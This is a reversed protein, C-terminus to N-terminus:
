GFSITSTNRPIRLLVVRETLGANVTKPVSAKDSAAVSGRSCCGPPM